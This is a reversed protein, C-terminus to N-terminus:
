AQVKKIGYLCEQIDPDGCKNTEIEELLVCGLDQTLTRLNDKPLYHMEVAGQQHPGSVYGTIHYPIHILAIGDKKLVRLLNTIFRVLISPRIHQMVILSIIIDPPASIKLQQTHTTFLLFEANPVEKKAIELHPKSIDVGYVKHALEACPKTLRGVGCGFDLVVKDKLTSGHAKLM